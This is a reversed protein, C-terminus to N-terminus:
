CRSAPGAPARDLPWAEHRLLLNRVGEKLRCVCPAPSWPPKANGSRPGRKVKPPQVMERGEKIIPIVNDGQSARRAPSLSPLVRQMTNPKWYPQISENKSYHLHSLPLLPTGARPHHSPAYGPSLKPGPHVM